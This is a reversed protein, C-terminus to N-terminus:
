KTAHHAAICGNSLWRAHELFELARGTLKGPLGVLDRLHHFDSASPAHVGPTTNTVAQNAANRALVVEEIARDRRPGAPVVRLIVEAFKRTAYNIQAHSLPRTCGDHWRDNVVAVVSDSVEDYAAGIEAYLPRTIDTADHWAFWADLEAENM